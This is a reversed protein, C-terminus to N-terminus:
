VPLIISLTDLVVLSLVSSVSLPLEGRKAHISLAKNEETKM